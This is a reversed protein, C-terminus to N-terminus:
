LNIPQLYPIFNRVIGYGFFTILLVTWLWLPVKSIISTKNFVIEWAFCVMVLFIGPIFILSFANYRFAQYFDLKLLAIGARTLGCGSCYVGFIQNIACPFGINYKINLYVYLFVILILIAVIGAFISLKRFLAKHQL